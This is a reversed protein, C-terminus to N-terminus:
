WVRCNPRSAEYNSRVHKYLDNKDHINCSVPKMATMVGIYGAFGASKYLIKGDKRFNLNVVM